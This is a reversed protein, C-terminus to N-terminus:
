SEEAWRKLKPAMFEETEAYVQRVSNDSLKQRDFSVSELHARLRKLAPAADELLNSKQSCSLCSRFLWLDSSHDPAVVSFWQSVTNHLPLKQQFTFFVADSGDTLKIREQPGAKGSEPALSKLYQEVYGDLDGKFPGLKYAQISLGTFTGTEDFRPIWVGEGTLQLKTKHEPPYQTDNWGKPAILSFGDCHLEQWPSEPEPKETAVQQGLTAIAILLGAFSTTM